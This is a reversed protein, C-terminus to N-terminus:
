NEGPLMEILKAEGDTLYFAIFKAIHDPSANDFHAIRTDAPEYFAEGAKIIKEDKHEIQFLITGESVYGFVPCPHKHLPVKQGPVLTIETVNVKSLSRKTIIESLLEKRSVKQQKQAMVSNGSFAFVGLCFLIKLLM